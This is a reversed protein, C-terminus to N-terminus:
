FHVLKINDFYVDGSEQDSPLAAGFLVKYSDLGSDIIAFTLDIYIKNWDEQEKLTVIYSAAPANGLFGILGINLEVSNKYDLELFVPQGNEQLNSFNLGTAVECFDAEGELKIYGSKIGEFVEDGTVTMSTAEDGDQDFSFLNNSEFDEIFAFQTNERYEFNLDLEEVRGKTLDLELLKTDYFPYIIPTKNIGNNRVGPSIQVAGPEEELIPIMAPLPFVGIDKGGQFVWVDKIKHSDSGEGTSTNFGIENINFIAPVDSTNDSCSYLFLLAGYILLKKM